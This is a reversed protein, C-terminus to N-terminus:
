PAGRGDPAKEAPPRRRHPVDWMRCGLDGSQSSAWHPVLRGGDDTGDFGVSYLVLGDDLRACRLPAGDFPDPPVAPLLEPTLRDLAEPWRGHAHRYREAALAVILCRLRAQHACFREETVILDSVSNRAPALFFGNMCMRGLGGRRRRPTGHLERDFQDMARRRLYPSLRAITLLRATWPFLRRHEARLDDRLYMRCRYWWPLRGYVDIGPGLDLTGGELRTIIEHMVAREARLAIQWGPHRDEDELLEQLDRLDDPALEGQALARTVVDGAWDVELLRRSQSWAFPEDGFARAANILARCDTAAARVDGAQADGWAAFRLLTHVARMQEGDSLSGPLGNRDHTIPFRGAPLDALKRAERLASGAQDLAARLRAYTAADFQENPPVDEPAVVEQGPWGAPLLDGAALVCLAGNEEDPVKARAAELDHWRWGPETRDLDAVEQRLQLGAKHWRWACLAASLGLLVALTLAAGREWPRWRPRRVEPKPERENV